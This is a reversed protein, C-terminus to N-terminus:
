ISFEVLFRNNQEQVRGFLAQLNDKNKVITGNEM